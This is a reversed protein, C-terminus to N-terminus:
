PRGILEASVPGHGPAPALVAQAALQRAAARIRQVNPLAQDELSRAFPVHPAEDALVAAIEGSLGFAVYDEDVVLVRGTAHAVQTIAQRDIPTVSRLDVVTAHIGDAELADAAQLCRHVSVGLSLMALDRGETRVAASGL